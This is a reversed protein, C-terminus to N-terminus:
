DPQAPTRTADSCRGEVCACAEVVPINCTGMQHNKGCQEKVKEPFAPSASNVCAPYAGCCSGVNKVACDADVHCSYDVVDGAKIPPGLLRPPAAHACAVLLLAITLATAIRM